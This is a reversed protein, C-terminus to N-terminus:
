NPYDFGSLIIKGLDNVEKAFEGLLIKCLAKRDDNGVARYVVKYSKESIDPNKAVMEKLNRLTANTATQWSAQYESTQTGRGVAHDQKHLSPPMGSPIPDDFAWATITYAVAAMGIPRLSFNDANIFAITLGVPTLLLNAYSVATGAVALASWKAILGAIETLSFATDTYGVITISKDLLELQHGSLRFDNALTNKTLAKKEADPVPLTHPPPLTGPSSTPAASWRSRIYTPIHYITEGAYILNVNRIPQMGHDSMRGFEHVRWFTNFMAASYKSLWDGHRVHIAGDHSVEVHYRGRRYLM